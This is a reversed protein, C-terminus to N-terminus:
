VRAKVISPTEAVPGAWTLLDMVSRMILTRAFLLAATNSRPGFIGAVRGLISVSRSIAYRLASENRSPADNM